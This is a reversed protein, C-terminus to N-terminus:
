HSRGRMGGQRPAARDTQSIAPVAAAAGNRRAGCAIGACCAAHVRVCARVCARVCPCACTCQCPPRARPRVAFGAMCKDIDTGEWRMLAEADDCVQPRRWPSEDAMAAASSDDDFDRQQQSGSDDKVEVFGAAMLFERAGRVSCDLITQLRTRIACPVPRSPLPRPPARQGERRRRRVVIAIGHCAPLGAGVSYRAAAAAAGRAV